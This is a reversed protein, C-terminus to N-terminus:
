AKVFQADLTITIDDGVLIGGTELAANWTLGFDKRNIKAAASIGIRTNGWPDKAPPTPGEVAFRVKRTVGHITLDGEVSVEGDALVNVGTFKFHLTPFKEVHFFDASKLHADRQEDRTHISAAEITAEIRDNAPNSEDRILVGSVGSFHGKVNAIMMHKVKFEAVTHAPDINWTTTTQPAAATTTSM